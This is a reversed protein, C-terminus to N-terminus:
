HSFDVEPLHDGEEWAGVEGRVVLGWWGQEQPFPLERGGAFRLGESEVARLLGSDCRFQLRLFVLPSSQLFSICTFEDRM